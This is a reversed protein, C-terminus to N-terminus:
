QDGREDYVPLWEKLRPDTADHIIETGDNGCPVPNGFPSNEPTAKYIKVPYARINGTGLVPDQANRDVLHNIASLEFGKGVQDLEPYWWQHEANACNPAIGYYLDAVQRVKGWPSEIWVWDGQRIDLDAATAPNIEVRPAPWLERCWPLQRHESHFYVPIRRGTTLIIPYDACTEPDAIPSHPPETYTPFNYRGDPFHSEMVTSWLEAKLTPTYFGPMGDGPTGLIGGKGRMRLAGTEYRRYTGWEKPEVAKCDWWGKEQFEQAYVEFNGGMNRVSFDQLDKISPNPNDPFYDKGMRVVLDRFIEVDWKAEGPADICNQVAGIAGHSGQSTRPCGAVELWTQAPLVVDALTMTPTMWMDVGVIFDLGLLSQWNYTTNGQHMFNGSTACLMRVPYPQGTQMAEFTKNEDAWMNLWRLVPFNENGIRKADQDPSCMTLLPNLNAFGSHGGEVPAHTSGRNGSPTDWNGTLHLLAGISRVTQGAHGQHETALMYQIGGNGYGTTPDIRTAYALCAEEIVQADVGTIESTKEPTYEALSERYLEWVPRATHTSGDKLTVTFEGDLAPDKAPDFNTPNPMWGKAVGPIVDVDPEVGDTPCSWTEGEWTGTTSDFYTLRNNLNDWAMWRRESGGEKLDSEKLIHTRLQFQAGFGSGEEFGTPEMDEVVLFPADTWRKIYLNDYLENDVIIHAWCLAVAADTGPRINLWYDAEKGLNTMRPDVVIHVDAKKATEVTTRCSDDYNSIESAGGWQIFVHPHEVTCMWSFAFCDVMGGMIQRPGKCIQWAQMSNPSNWLGQWEIPWVRSTGAIGAITEGGYQDALENGKQIVYDLAEEWSVRKWEPNEGRANIRRLPYRLRDPHYAAQLSSQSKTCCNGRSQFASEDGEVKVARGNEVTVWVGCEMKGCGRCTTRIRKVSGSSGTTENHENALAGSSGSACIAATTAAACAIFSRRTLLTKGLRTM